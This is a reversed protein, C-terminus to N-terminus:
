PIFSVTAGAGVIVVGLYTLPDAITKMRHYRVHYDAAGCQHPCWHCHAYNKRWNSSLATMCHFAYRIGVCRNTTTREVKTHTTSASTNISEGGTHRPDDMGGTYHPGDAFMHPGHM